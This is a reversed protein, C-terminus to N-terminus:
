QQRCTTSRIDVKSLPTVNLATESSYNPLEDYMAILLAYNKCHHRSGETLRSLAYGTTTPLAFERLARCRSVRMEKSARCSQRQGGHRESSSRARIELGVLNPVHTPSPTYHIRFSHIHLNCGDLFLCIPMRIDHRPITKYM